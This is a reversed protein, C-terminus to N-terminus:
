ADQYRAYDEPFCAFGVAQFYSVAHFRNQEVRRKVEAAFKSDAPSVEVRTEGDSYECRLIRYAKGQWLFPQSRLVESHRRLIEEEREILELALEEPMVAETNFENWDGAAVMEDVRIQDLTRHDNSAIKTM